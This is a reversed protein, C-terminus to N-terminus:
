FEQPIPKPHEWWKATQLKRNINSKLFSYDCCVFQKSIWGFNSKKLDSFCFPIRKPYPKNPISIIRRQVLYRGDQSIFVCPALYKSLWVFRVNDVYNIWESINAFARITPDREIKLVYRPDRKYTYVDRYLGIGILPGCHHKLIFSVDKHDFYVKSLGKIKM